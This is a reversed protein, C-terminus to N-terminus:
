KPHGHGAVHGHCVGVDMCSSPHYCFDGSQSDEQTLSLL